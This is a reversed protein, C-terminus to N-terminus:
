EICECLSQRKWFMPVTWKLETHTQLYPQWMNFTLWKRKNSIVYSLFMCIFNQIEKKNQSIKKSLKSDKKEFKTYIWSYIKGNFSCKSTGVVFMTFIALWTEITLINFHLTQNSKSKSETRVMEIQTSLMGICLTIINGVFLLM